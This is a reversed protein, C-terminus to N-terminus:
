FIHTYTLTHTCSHTFPTCRTIFYLFQLFKFERSLVLTSSACGLGFLCCFLSVRHQFPLKKRRHVACLLDNGACGLVSDAPSPTSCLVTSVCNTVSGTVLILSSAPALASSTFTPRETKSVEAGGGMYTPTVITSNSWPSTAM